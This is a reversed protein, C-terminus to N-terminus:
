SKRMDGFFSKVLGSNLKFLWRLVDLLAKFITKITDVHKESKLTKKQECYLNQKESRRDNM